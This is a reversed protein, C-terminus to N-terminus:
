AAANIAKKTGMWIMKGSQKIVYNSDEDMAKEAYKEIIKWADEASEENEFYFISIADESDDSNEAAICVSLDEFGTSIAVIGLTLEDDMVNVEYGKKELAKAAKDPDANPGFLMGCSALVTCAFACVLAMAIIKVLTKKM